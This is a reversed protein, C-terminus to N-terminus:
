GNARKAMKKALSLCKDQFPLGTRHMIVPLLGVLDYHGHLGGFQTLGADGFCGGQIQGAAKHVDGTALAHQLDPRCAVAGSLIPLSTISISLGTMRPLATM